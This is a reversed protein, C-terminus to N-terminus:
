ACGLITRINKSSSAATSPCADDVAYIVEVEPGIAAIVNMVHRTVKYCPIAIAIRMATM